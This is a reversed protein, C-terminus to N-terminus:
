KLVRFPGGPKTDFKWIHDAFRVMVPGGVRSTLTAETLAGDKWKMTDVTVGGRACLGSVEGDKWASPLAPLLDITAVGNELRSQVLMEAMGATAGFNGDIQFPPHLDFLNPSLGKSMLHAIMRHAHDGDHLRALFNIKWGMSWGTSVDGRAKLTARAAEALAPTAEPTIQHGPYLGFLHNVHRHHPEASDDVDEFWECLRGDPGIRYGVLGALATKWKATRADAVGLADAAGLADTLAERAMALDTTTGLSVPGHEPSWGPAVTLRDDPLKFLMGAVADAAGSLPAWGRERLANKDGTFAYQEYAHTAVWAGGLPFYSWFRPRNVGPNPHTSGWINSALMACWGGTDFYARATVAGSPMLSTAYDILPEQCEALNCPGAPWYNMQLNINLHYDSRWAPLIENCWVGQLNAPLSGPRSSAILLYRGYQFLIEELDPDTAGPNKKLAAVRADTPLAKVDSPSDGWDVAVRGYLEHHDAVHRARLAAYGSDTKALGAVAESPAVGSRWHPPKAAYDTAVFVELTVADAGAVVLADGDTKVSGGDHVVKVLCAVRLGNSELKGSFLMGDGKPSSALPHPSELTVRLNQRAPKDAAFRAVLRRDPYSLFTERTFVAGDTEYRTAVVADDLSLARRYNAVPLRHGTEVILDGLTKYEGFIKNVEGRDEPGLGRCEKSSLKEAEKYKGALLLRRIEPLARYADPKDKPEDWGPAGPGGSWLTKENLQIREAAVDGYVMAGMFGDGVPLAYKEWSPDVNTKDAPDPNEFTWSRRPSKVGYEGAGRTFVIERAPEAAFLPALAFLGSFVAPIRPM